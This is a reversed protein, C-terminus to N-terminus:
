TLEAHHRKTTPWKCKQVYSMPCSSLCYGTGVSSRRARQQVPTRSNWYIRVVTCAVTPSAVPAALQSLLVHPLAHRQTSPEPSRPSHQSVQFSIRVLVDHVHEHMTTECALRIKGALSSKRKKRESASFIRSAQSVVHMAPPLITVDTTQRQPNVRAM